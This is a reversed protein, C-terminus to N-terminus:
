SNVSSGRGGSMNRLSAIFSQRNSREIAAAFPSITSPSSLFAKFNGSKENRDVHSNMESAAKNVNVNRKM